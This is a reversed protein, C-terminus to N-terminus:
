PDYSPDPFITAKVSLLMLLIFIALLFIYKYLIDLDAHAIKMHHKLKKHKSFSKGCEQCTFEISLVLQSIGGDKHTLEIKDSPDGSYGSNEYQFADDNMNAERDSKTTYKSKKNKKNATSTNNIQSQQQGAGAVNKQFGSAM